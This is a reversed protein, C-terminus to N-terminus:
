TDPATARELGHGIDHEIDHPLTTRAARLYAFPTRHGLNSVRSTYIDASREVQRAFLSKDSGSRMLPGWPSGGLLTATRALPGIREDITRIKRVLADVRRRGARGHVVDLRVQALESELTSKEAMLDSLERESEAFERAAAIEDELESLILATRWRLTAKSAHVDGFLHDGVYLIQDGALGLTEEVMAATGGHYVEGVEYPGRHPMLAGTDPDVVRFAQNRGEFFGPKSASVVVIDFLSRWSGDPVQDVPLLGEFYWSMMANTYSWESNTVLLLTKGAARQDLLTQAVGPDRVVFREPDAKITAKLEGIAHSDDIAARVARHLDEYDYVGPAQGADLRDVLQQFLAAESLSFMTNLFVWRRDDLDVFDGAYDARIEEFSLWHDGHRAAIVYGFRTAKVLNGLHVDIVLGQLFEDPEFVLDDVPWGRSGLLERAHEFSETEWDDVRYHILTYDMDYGIAQVSRLNLTRNAYVEREPPWM